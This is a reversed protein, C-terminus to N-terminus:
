RSFSMGAFSVVSAQDINWQGYRLLSGRARPVARLFTYLPSSGCWKLDDHNEQILSWYGEPDGAAAREIRARDRAEVEAMIGEGAVAEFRDHYRAGMHAMDIGLVWFLRDGERESMEGLADLFRHVGDDKEPMGAGYVSDVFPGCLLPLIRIDPGYVHQLFLVQLEVTHEFSHCFDEMELAPGGDRELRSALDVDTPSEGLPTVFPKRTLGFRQPEGYHSTALIVFTRDKYEPGLVGYAARYAEWGGEPSVHPAAIGTLGGATGVAGNMYRGLTSRLQDLDGPYASGAHAALRTPCAAFERQRAERMGAYVGDELFGGASLTDVLHAQLESVDLEGTLRVLEAKLDLDSQEGDFFELCHVLAPPIIVMADTYRYPDRIFLGPRDEVPSPMFDLDMRLRALPQPM